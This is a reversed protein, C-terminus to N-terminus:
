LITLSKLNRTPKLNRGCNKIDFVIKLKKYRLIWNAGCLTNENIEGYEWNKILGIKVLEDFANEVRERACSPKLYKVNKYLFEIPHKLTIFNKSKSLQLCIFHALYKEFYKKCSLYFIEKPVFYSGKVRDKAFCFEWVYKKIKKVHILNLVCLTELAKSIRKKDEIKYQKSYRKVGRLLLIDDASIKVFCLSNASYLYVNYLICLVDDLLVPDSCLNKTNLFPNSYKLDLKVVPVVFFDFNCFKPKISELFEEILRQAFKHLFSACLAESTNKLVKLSFLFSNPSKLKFTVLLKKSREEYELNCLITESIKKGLCYFDCVIERSFPKPRVGKPIKDSIFSFEKECTKKTLVDKLFEFFYNFVAACFSSHPLIRKM